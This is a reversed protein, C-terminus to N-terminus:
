DDQLSKFWAVYEALGDRLAVDPKWGMSLAVQTDAIYGKPDGKRAVGSFSPTLSSGYHKFLDTLLHDVSLGHGSGGNVVTHNETKTEALKFILKAADSVHLWDRVEKGTGFFVAESMVVKNLADWLLQKKLGAGYVSFLRVVVTELNIISSYEECLKEASLKNIGYPSLPMLNATEAIPLNSTEGYVGATSLYILKTKLQTKRIYKLLGETSSVTKQYDLEPNKVSLPVSSGGAAHVIVQPKLNLELLKQETVNHNFWKSVGWKEHEIQPWDGNGLGVVYWGNKAFISAVHRGIFGYAGTVLVVSKSM